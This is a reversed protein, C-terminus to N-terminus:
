GVSRAGSRPKVVLPFDCQRLLDSVDNPLASQPHPFGNAVLFQYTLWKDDAIRIVEPPSVIVHTSYESEILSKNIAFIMLEVDTGVLVIDPRELAIIRTLRELYSPDAALPILYAKDAWYLGVSRPDPDVAIIEYNTPALRLSKIIGQGLLAGAGTVLVKM